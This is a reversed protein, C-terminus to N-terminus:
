VVNEVDISYPIGLESYRGISYSEDLYVRSIFSGLRMIGGIVDCVVCCLMLERLMICITGCVFLCFMGVFRIMLELHDGARINRLLFWSLLRLRM